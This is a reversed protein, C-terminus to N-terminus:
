AFPVAHCFNRAVIISYQNDKAFVPTGLLAEPAHAGTSRLVAEFKVQPKGAMFNLREAGSCLAKLLDSHNLLPACDFNVSVMQPLTSTGCGQLVL